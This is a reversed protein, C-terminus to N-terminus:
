GAANADLSDDSAADLAEHVARTAAEPLPFGTWLIFQADAQALFMARGDLAQWGAARAADLFPTAHYIVDYALSAPTAPPFADLPSAQGDAGSSLGVPTTNVILDAAIHRRAWPLAAVRPPTGQTERAPRVAAILAEAQEVRRAAVQISELGPLALLGSLAARAAGGAGLILASRYPSSPLSPRRLLPALFGEADTNHGILDPGDWYLTNVAGVREALPTLRDALPLIAEKHPLTVCAGAMRLLRFARVFDPLDDKAIRWPLLAAPLGWARFATNHLLPSLSHSVPDGIVGYLKM